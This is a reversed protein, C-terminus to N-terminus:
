VTPSVTVSLPPADADALACTVTAGAGWIWSIHTPLRDPVEALAPRLEQVAVTVTVTRPPDVAGATATGPTTTVPVHDAPEPAVLQVVPVEPAQATFLEDSLLFFTGDTVKVTVPSEFDPQVYTAGTGGLM